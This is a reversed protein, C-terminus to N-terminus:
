IRNSIKGADPADPIAMKPLANTLIRGGSGTGLNKLLYTLAAGAAVLGLQSWDVAWTGKMGIFQYLFDLAAMIVSCIFGRWFDSLQLTGLKTFQITM